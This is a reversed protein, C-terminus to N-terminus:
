GRHAVGPKNINSSADQSINIDRSNNDHNLPRYKAKKPMLYIGLLIVAPLLVVQLVELIM